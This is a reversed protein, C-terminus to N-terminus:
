SDVSRVPQKRYASSTWSGNIADAFPDTAKSGGKTVDRSKAAMGLKILVAGLAQANRRYNEEDFTEGAMLRATDRDCLFSLTAAQRIMVAESAKPSRALQDMLDGAIVKFARAALTRGDVKRGAIELSFVAALDATDLANDNMQM